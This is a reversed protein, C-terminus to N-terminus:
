NFLILISVEKPTVSRSTTVISSINSGTTEETSFSSTSAVSSQRETEAFKKINFANGAVLNKTLSNAKKTDVTEINKSNSENTSEEHKKTSLSSKFSSSSGITEASVEEDEEEYVVDEDEFEEDEVEDDMEIEESKAYSALRTNNINSKPTCGAYQM